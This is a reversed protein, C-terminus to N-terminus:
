SGFLSLGMLYLVIVPFAIWLIFLHFIFVTFVVLAFGRGIVNVGRMFVSTLRGQWDTQGFMPVFINRLWLGPSLTLNADQLTHLCAIGVRKLGGTYWWVPFYVVDILFELAIRQAILVWM